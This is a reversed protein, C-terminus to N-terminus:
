KTAVLERKSRVYFIIGPIIQLLIIMLSMILFVHMGPFYFMIIAGIWWGIALLSIWKYNYLFGSVFYTIGLVVSILASVFMGSIAGSSTAVFGLITMAIGSSFWLASEIKGIFTRSKKEKIKKRVKIITFIWGIGMFVVWNWPIYSYMKSNIFYYTSLLGLIVLIGWVIYGIGNEVVTKRSDDIINKIYSIEELAQQENM